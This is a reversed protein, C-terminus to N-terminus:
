QIIELILSYKNGAILGHVFNVRVFGGGEYVWDIYPLQTLRLSVNTNNTVKGVHIMSVFGLGTSIRSSLTPKGNGDVVIDLQVKRRALNDFDLQGNVVAVLEDSFDNVPGAVKSIADQFDPEFDEPVIRRTESVKPM